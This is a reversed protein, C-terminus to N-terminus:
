AREPHAVRETGPEVLDGKAGRRAGPRGGCPAPSVLCARGTQRGSSGVLDIAVVEVRRDVLLDAPQGPSVAVRDYKAQQLAPGGLLGGPLQAAREARDM